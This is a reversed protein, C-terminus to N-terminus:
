MAAAALRRSFVRMQLTMRMAPATVNMLRFAGVLPDNTPHRPPRSPWMEKLPSGRVQGRISLMTGADYRIWGGPGKGGRYPCEYRLQSIRTRISHVRTASVLLRGAEAPAGHMLAICLWPAKM